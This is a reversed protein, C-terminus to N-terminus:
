GTKKQDGHIAGHRHLLWSSVEHRTCGFPGSSLFQALKKEMQSNPLAFAMELFRAAECDRARAHDTALFDALSALGDFRDTLARLLEPTM